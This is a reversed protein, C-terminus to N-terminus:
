GERRPGMVGTVVLMWALLIPLGVYFPLFFLGIADTSSSPFYLIRVTMVFHAVCVVAALGGFLRSRGTRVTALSAAAYPAAAIASFVLGGGLRLALDLFLTRPGAQAIVPVEVVVGYIVAAYTFAFMALGMVHVARLWPDENVFFRVIRLLM